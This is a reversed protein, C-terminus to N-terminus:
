DESVAAVLHEMLWGLYGYAAYLVADESTPDLGSVDLDEDVDLRTGLVLRLDNVAGMWAELQEADVTEADLTEEVVALQRARREALSDGVMEIYEAAAKPDDQYANPQLRWLTPDSGDALLERMQPVLSALLAREHDELRIEYTGDRQRRVLRRRGFLM